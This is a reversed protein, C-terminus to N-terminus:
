ARASRRAHERGPRRWSTSCWGSCSTCSASRSRSVWSPCSRKRGARHLALAGMGFWAAGADGFLEGYLLGFIVTFASCAGAIEAISRRTSGSDAGRGLALALGGLLLGYGVDGLVLGFFMPFFIAVFPTPDMTGYRPLPLIRILTEFPRFLRPNHLVVPVDEGVWEERAVEEVVTTEGLATRLESRLSPGQASPVWGELVFAHDTAGARETLELRALGDALSVEATQLEAAHRKRLLTLARDIRRIEGPIARVRELVRPIAEAPALGEAVGPLAVEQVRAARFLEELPERASSPVLILVGTEGTDLTRSWVEFEEGLMERLGERLERLPRDGAAPLVVHYAAAGPWQRAAEALSRFAAFFQRYRSLFAREEELAERRERLGAAQTRVSRALRAWRALRARDPTRPPAAAAGRRGDLGDLAGRVCALARGLRVRLREQEPGASLTSVGASEKPPTVHLQGFDQLATLVDPLLARPGLIRVKSMPLIM